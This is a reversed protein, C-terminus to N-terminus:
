ALGFARFMDQITKGFTGNAFPSLGTFAGLNENSLKKIRRLEEEKRVEQRAFRDHLAQRQEDSIDLGAAALPTLVGAVRRMTADQASFVGANFGGTATDAIRMAVNQMSAGIETGNVITDRAVNLAFSSAAGIARRTLRAKMRKAFKSEGDDDGAGGASRRRAGGAGGGGGGRGGSSVGASFAQLAATADELAVEFDRVPDAPQGNTPSGQASM